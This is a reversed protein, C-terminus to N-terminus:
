IKGDEAAGCGTSNFLEVHNAFLSVLRAVLNKNIGKDISKPAPIWGTECSKTSSISNDNLETNITDLIANQSQIISQYQESTIITNNDKNLLETELTFYSKMVSLSQRLGKRTPFILLDDLSDEISEQRDEISTSNM